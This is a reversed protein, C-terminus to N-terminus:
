PGSAVAANSVIEYIRITEKFGEFQRVLVARQLLEDILPSDPPDQTLTNYLVVYNATSIIGADARRYHLNWYIANEPLMVGLTEETLVVPADLGKLEEAFFDITEQMADDPQHQIFRFNWTGINAVLLATLVVLLVAKVIKLEAYISFLRYCYVGIMLYTPILLIILYHPAKLAVMALFALSSLYWAFFLRENGLTGNKLRRANLIAIPVSIILAAVTTFFVWYTNYIVAITKSLDFNLGRSEVSGLARQIQVWTNNLFVDGYSITMIAIYLCGVVIASAVVLGHKRWEKREFLAMILPVGLIHIGTHKYIISWGILVGTLVHWKGLEKKQSIYYSTLAISVWLMQTNEILNLRNTYNLWGDTVLFLLVLLAANQDTVLWVLNFLVLFTYLSSLTSLIRLSAINDGGTLDLWTARVLFDIPPHYLYIHYPEFGESRLNPFGTTMTNKAIQFYVTEDWELGPRIDIEYLRMVAAICFILLVATWYIRKQWQIQNEM